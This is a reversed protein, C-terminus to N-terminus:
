ETLNKDRRFIQLIREDNRLDPIVSGDFQVPYGLKVYMRNTSHWFVPDIVIWQVSASSYAPVFYATYILEQNALVAFAIGSVSHEMTELRERAEDTVIFYCDRANYSKLDSYRLLAEDSFVLSTTDIEVSEEYCEYEDLLYFEVEGPVDPGEEQCSLLMAFLVCFIVGPIKTLNVM